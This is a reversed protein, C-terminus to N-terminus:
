VRRALVRRTFPSSFSAFLSPTHPDYSPASSPATCRPSAQFMQPEVHHIASRSKPHRHILERYRPHLDALLPRNLRHLFRAVPLPEEDALNLGSAIRTTRPRSSRGHVGRRFADCREKVRVHISAD